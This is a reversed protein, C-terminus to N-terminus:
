FSMKRSEKLPRLNVESLKTGCHPCYSIDLGCRYGFEDDYVNMVGRDGEMTIVFELDDNEPRLIKYKEDLPSLSCYMCGKKDSEGLAENTKNIINELRDDVAEMDSWLTLDLYSEDETELYKGSPYNGIKSQGWKNILKKNEEKLKKVEELFERTQKM